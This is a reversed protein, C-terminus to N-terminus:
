LPYQLLMHYSTEQSGYEDYLSDRAKMSYLYARLGMKGTRAKALMSQRPRQMTRYNDLGKKTPVPNLRRIALGYNTENWAQIWQQNTRARRAPRAARVLSSLLDPREAQAARPGEKRRGTAEKAANVTAENSPIGTCTPVWHLTLRGGIDHNLHRHAEVIRKLPCQGSQGGPCHSPRIAAQNHTFIHIPRQSQDSAALDLAMILGYIEATYIAFKDETNLYATRISTVM